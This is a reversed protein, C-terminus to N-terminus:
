DSGAEGIVVWLDDIADRLTRRVASLRLLLANLDTEYAVNAVGTWDARCEARPELQRYLELHDLTASAAARQSRIADLASAADTTPTFTM